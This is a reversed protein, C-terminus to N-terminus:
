TEYHLGENGNQGIVDIRDENWEDDVEAMFETTDTWVEKSLHNFTARRIGYNGNILKWAQTGKQRHFMGQLPLKRLHHNEPLENLIVQTVM